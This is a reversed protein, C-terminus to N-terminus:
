AKGGKKSERDLREINRYEECDWFKMSVNSPFLTENIPVYSISFVHNDNFNSEPKVYIHGCEPLFELKLPKGKSSRNAIDVAIGLRDVLTMLTPYSGLICHEFQKAVAQLVAGRRTKGATAYTTVNSIFYRM